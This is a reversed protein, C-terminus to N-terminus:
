PAPDRPAGAALHDFLDQALPSLAVGERACLSLERRAWDDALPVAAIPATQGGPRVGSQPIIAIGVGAGVCQCIADLSRLRLRHHLRMGMAAARAAVHDSLASDSLGIFHRGALDALRVHGAGALDDTAATVVVLKDRAFPRLILGDLAAAHSLIGFDAFGALVNRAIDTSQREKLDVDVRPNRALWGALRLPLPDTLTATNAQVRLTSRPGTRQDGLEGQMLAMQRLILRAHHALAEGSETLTVGRRGRDLLRLGGSLEMQRLRESAAPLSLAADAAGHTISGREAVALFLRLDTLDFRM